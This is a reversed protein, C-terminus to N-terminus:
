FNCLKIEYNFGTLEMINLPMENNTIVTTSLKKQKLLKM